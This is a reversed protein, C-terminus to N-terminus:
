KADLHRALRSAGYKARWAKTAPAAGDFPAPCALWAEQAAAESKLAALASEVDAVGIGAAKARAKLRPLRRAAGAADPVVAEEARLAAAELAIEGKLDDLFLKALREFDAGKAKAAHKKGFARFAAVDGEGLAHFAKRTEDASAGALMAALAASGIERPADPLACLVPGYPVRCDAPWGVGETQVQKVPTARANVGLRIRGLGSPLDKQTPIIGWGGTPRGVSVARGTESLAWTFTEASSVEGEDQLMVVPGDFQWAGTPVLKRGEGNPTERSFLRGCMDWAEADGGGGMSRCDLLLAKMGKLGDFAAHFAKATAADMGGTIKLYGIKAGGPGDLLKACAGEAYALGEPLFASMTAFGKGGPGWRPVDVKRVKGDPTLFAASVRQADGFPLLRNSLSAFLSHASSVGLIGEIRRRERELALWAPDAGVSLLTSGRPVQDALGHGEVMGRLTSRGDEWAFWLGGGFLGEWKSPLKERPVESSWLDTHSDKCRALLRMVLGLHEADDKCAAFRPRFEACAAKWDIKKTRVSAGEEAVVAALFEFDRLYRSAEQARLPGGVAAWLAAACAIARNM